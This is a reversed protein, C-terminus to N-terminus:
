FAEAPLAMLTDAGAEIKRRLANSEPMVREAFFRATILKNEHFAKDEAGNALAELSAKAMRLWM